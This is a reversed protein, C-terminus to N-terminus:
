SVSRVMYWEIMEAATMKAYVTEKDREKEYVVEKELVGSASDRAEKQISVINGSADYNFLFDLKKLGRCDDGGTTEDHVKKAEVGYARIIKGNEYEFMVQGARDDSVLAQDRDFDSGKFYRVSEINGDSDYAYEKELNDESREYDEPSSNSNDEEVRIVRGKDDVYKRFRYHNPYEGHGKEEALILKNKDEETLYKFLEQRIKWMDVSEWGGNKADVSEQKKEKKVISSINEGFGPKM